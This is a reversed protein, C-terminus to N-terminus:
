RMRTKTGLWNMPLRASGCQQSGKCNKRRSSSSSSSQYAASRVAEEELDPPLFEPRQSDPTGPIAVPTAPVSEGQVAPGASSSAQGSGEAVVSSPSPVAKSTPAVGPKLEFHTEGTWREFLGRNPKSEARFDDEIKQQKTSGANQVFTRRKGTFDTDKVPCEQVKDPTFLTLRTTNHVRELTDGRFEWKDRGLKRRAPEPEARVEALTVDEELAQGPTEQSADLYHRGSYGRLLASLSVPSRIVSMGKTSNM